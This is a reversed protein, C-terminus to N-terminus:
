YRQIRCRSNIIQATVQSANSKELFSIGSHLLNM